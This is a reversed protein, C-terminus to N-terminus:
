INRTKIGLFDCMIQLSDVYDDFVTVQRDGIAKRAIRKANEVDFGISIRCHATDETWAVKGKSLWMEGSDFDIGGAFEGGAFGVGAKSLEPVDQGTGAGFEERTM